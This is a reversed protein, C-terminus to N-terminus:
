DDDESPESLQRDWLGQAARLLHRMHSTLERSEQLMNLYLYAVTLNEKSNQMRQIQMNRAYEFTKKLMAGEKRVAPIEDIARRQLIKATRDALYLVADRLPVFDRLQEVSLPPFGNDVHERCPEEIRRLCYLMNDCSNRGLHFWTSQLMAVEHDVRRLTVMEIRRNNKLEERRRKMSRDSKRLTSLNEEMFADTIQRYTQKCYLVCDAESMSIHEELMESLKEKDSERSMEEYLRDSAPSKAKNRSTTVSRILLFAVIASLVFAAVAGGWNLLLAVVFAMVFAAGATIFWGGIVSVVGTIRYVATERGWAKDALSTGMAVMFTVYTTSLPLKLSTGLAILLSAVVLNVTARVEDFAAGERLRIQSTDLRKNAWAKLADPTVDDFFAGVATSFRVLSRAIKSSGFMEEGEGQRSLDVSTKIVNRSKKSFLLAAVMIAGAILLFGVPTRASSNLSDMMFTSPDALPHAAFDQYSSLGAMSVGIFNVLDNGAFAMALAFTGLLVLVKFVDVKLFYLGQMLLTSAIFCVGLVPLTNAELWSVWEPRMISMGAISKFLMFYAIVTTAVGGFLGIKWKLKNKYSFTFILRCIYQIIAGFFFALAVSLFISFIIELAKETNMLDGIGLAGDSHTLKLLAFAATGGLLEFVMSVTTSTPLALNNFVDLLLVDSLIVAMFITMVEKFSFMEPHFIGHRAIDMMGGSTAAGVFIGLAAVAFITSLRAVRAGIASNLFNVADNSVGVVLDVVAFALLVIVFILYINM